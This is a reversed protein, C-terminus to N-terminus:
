EQRLLLLYFLCIFRLRLGMATYVVSIEIPMRKKHCAPANVSVRPCVSRKRIGPSIFVDRRDGDTLVKCFILTVLPIALSIVISPGVAFVVLNLFPGVSLLTGLSFTCHVRNNHHPVNMLNVPVFICLKNPHISGFFIGNSSNFAEFVLGTKRLCRIAKHVLSIFQISVMPDIPKLLNIRQGLKCIQNPVRSHLRKVPIPVRGGTETALSFSM